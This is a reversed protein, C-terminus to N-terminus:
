FSDPHVREFLRRYHEVRAVYDKTEPYEIAAPDLTKGGGAKIWRGVPTPGANYAAIAAVEDGGFRRLLYAVYCAGLELNDAPDTVQPQDDGRYSDLRVIFDVTDPMLQMLGRAGAASRAAPDFGSETRVMAALLYPDLDYREAARAIEDQYKLPFIRASASPVVLRGSFVAFAVGALGALVAVLALVPWLRRRRRAASV